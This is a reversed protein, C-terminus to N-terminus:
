PGNGALASSGSNGAAPKFFIYYLEQRNTFSGDFIDYTIVTIDSFQHFSLKLRDTTHVM